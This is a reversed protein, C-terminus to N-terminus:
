PALSSGAPSRDTTDESGVEAWATAPRRRYGLGGDDMFDLAVVVAGDPLDVTGEATVPFPVIRSRRTTKVPEERFPSRMTQDETREVLPRRARLIRPERITGAPRDGVESGRRDELPATM